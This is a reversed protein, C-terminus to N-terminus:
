VSKRLVFKYNTRSSRLFKDEFEKEIELDEVLHHYNKFQRIWWDRPKRTRHLDVEKYFRHMSHGRSATAFILGDPALHLLINDFLQDMGSLEIHELVEWLTIINFQALKLDETLLTFPKTIDCLFLSDPITAWEFKNFRKCYDSGELGIAPRGEDLMDKVFGGGACGLDLVSGPYKKLEDNFEQCRNNDQSAGYPYLYDMSELALHYATVLHFKSAMINKGIRKGGTDKEM